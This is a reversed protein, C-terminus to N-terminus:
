EIKRVLKNALSALELLMEEQWRTIPVNRNDMSQLENVAMALSYDTMDEATPNYSWREALMLDAHLESSRSM